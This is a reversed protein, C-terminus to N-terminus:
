YPEDGNHKCCTVFKLFDFYFYFLFLFRQLFCCEVINSMDLSHAPSFGSDFKGM